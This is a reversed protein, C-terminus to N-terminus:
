SNSKRTDRNHQQPQKAIKESANIV